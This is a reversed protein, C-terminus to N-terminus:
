STQLSLRTAAGRACQRLRRTAHRRARPAHVFLDTRAAAEANVDNRAIEFKLWYGKDLHHIRGNFALLFELGHDAGRQKM